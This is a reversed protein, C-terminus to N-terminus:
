RVRCARKLKAFEPVGKTAEVAGAPCDILMERPPRLLSVSIRGLAKYANPQISLAGWIRTYATEATPEFREGRPLILVVEMSAGGARPTVTVDRLRVSTTREMQRLQGEVSTEIRMLLTSPVPKPSSVGQALLVVVGAANFLNM